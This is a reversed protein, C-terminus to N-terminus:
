MYLQNEKSITFAMWYISTLTLDRRAINIVLLCAVQDQLNHGRFKIPVAGNHRPYDEAYIQSTSNHLDEKNRTYTLFSGERQIFLHRDSDWCYSLSYLQQIDIRFLFDAEPLKDCIVFTHSFKFDEIWLHLTAKGMSSMPSGDATWLNLTASLILTKYHDEIMSYMSTDMLSIAASSVIFAKFCKRAYVSM